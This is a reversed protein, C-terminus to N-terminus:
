ANVNEFVEVLEVNDKGSRMITFVDADILRKLTGFYKGPNISETDGSAVSLYALGNAAIDNADDGVAHTIKLIDTTSNEHKKLTFVISSGTLDKTPNHSIKNKFSDGQSFDKVIKLKAM